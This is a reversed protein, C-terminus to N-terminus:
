VCWHASYLICCVRAIVPRCRRRRRRARVTMGMWQSVTMSTILGITAPWRRERVTAATATSVPASHAERCLPHVIPQFIESPTCVNGYLLAHNILFKSRPTCDTRYFLTRPRLIRPHWYNKSVWLGRICFTNDWLDIPKNVRQVQALANWKHIM